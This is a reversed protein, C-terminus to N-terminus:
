RTAWLREILQADDTAAFDDRRAYAEMLWDRRFVQPSQAEWLGERAVTEQIIKRDSGVRKLTGSVAHRLDCGRNRPRASCKTSGSM